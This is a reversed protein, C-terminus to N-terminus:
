ARDALLGVSLNDDGGIVRFSAASVTAASVSAVVSASAASAVTAASLSTLRELRSCYVERGRELLVVLLGLGLVAHLASEVALYLESGITPSLTGYILSYHPRM